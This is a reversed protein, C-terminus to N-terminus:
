FDLDSCVEWLVKTLLGMEPGSLHPGPVTHGPDHIRVNAFAQYKQQRGRLPGGTSHAIPGKFRARGRNTTIQIVYPEQLLHRSIFIVHFLSYCYSNYYCNSSKPHRSLIPNEENFKWLSRSVPMRKGLICIYFKPYQSTVHTTWHGLYHTPSRPGPGLSAISEVDVRPFSQFIAYRAEQACAISM